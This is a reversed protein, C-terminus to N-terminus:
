AAGAPFHGSGHGDEPLGEGALYVRGFVAVYRHAPGGTGADLQVHRDPGVVARFLDGAIKEEIEVVVRCLHVMCLSLPLLKSTM